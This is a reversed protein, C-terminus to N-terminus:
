AALPIALPEALRQLGTADVAAAMEAVTQGNVPHIVDPAIDALPRLVFARETMFAHPITLDDSQVIWDAYFLIDIDILRPGWKITKQRGLEVELNKLFPLLEAPSVATRGALCINLFEPQDTIGWPESAYIPSVATVTLVPELGLVAQELNHRRNGLNTGLGLYIDRM